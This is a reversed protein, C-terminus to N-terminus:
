VSASLRLTGDVLRGFQPPRCVRCAELNSGAVDALPIMHAETRAEPLTCDPQHYSSGGAVVYGALSTPTGASTGGQREVALAVRELAAELRAMDARQNQVLVLASGLVVVGLGVMGGSILFPFQAPVFNHSAAGNWGFFMVLFGVLCLLVGLQGGLKGLHNRGPLPPLSLNPSLNSM